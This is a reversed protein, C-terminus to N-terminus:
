SKRNIKTFAYPENKHVNHYNLDMREFDIEYDYKFLENLLHIPLGMDYCGSTDSVKNAPIGILKSNPFWAMSRNKLRNTLKSELQNPNKFRLPAVQMLDSRKFINGDLSGKYKFHEKKTINAGLRLSVIDVNDFFADQIDDVERFLICDDVFLGIYKSSEKVLRIFDAHFFTEEIFIVDPYRKKLKDYSEVFKTKYLVKIDNVEKLNKKISRLLCDLQLPRDKSFIIADIM